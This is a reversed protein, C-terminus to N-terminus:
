VFPNGDRIRGEKLYTLYDPQLLGEFARKTDQHAMELFEEVPTRDVGVIRRDVSVLLHEIGEDDPPHTQVIVRMLDDPGRMQYDTEWAARQYTKSSFEAPGEMKITLYQQIPVGRDHRPFLKLRDFFALGIFDHEETEEPIPTIALHGMVKQRFVPWDTYAAETLYTDTHTVCATFKPDDRDMLLYHPVPGRDRKEDPQLLIEALCGRKRQFEAVRREIGLNPSYGLRFAVKDLPPNAWRGM